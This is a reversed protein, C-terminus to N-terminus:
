IFDARRIKLVTTFEKARIDNIRPLGTFFTYAGFSDGKGLSYLSTLERTNKADLIVEVSGKEIFYIAQDDEM